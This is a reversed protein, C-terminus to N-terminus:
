GSQRIGTWDRITAGDAVPTLAMWGVLLASLGEAKLRAALAQIRASREDATIPAAAPPLFKMPNM